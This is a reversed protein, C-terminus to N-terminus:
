SAKKIRAPPAELCSTWGPTAKGTAFMELRPEPSVKEILRRIRTPKEGYKGRPLEMWSRQPSRFARSGRVGLLLLEHNERWYDGDVQGPKTWVFSSKYTFGFCEIAELGERLFSSPVWIHLHSNSAALSEVPLSLIDGTSMTEWPPAVLFCGFKRGTLGELEASADTTASAATKSRRSSVPKARSARGKENNRQRLQTNYQKLDSLRTDPGLEGKKLASKLDPQSFLTMEHLITWSAPLLSINKANSIVPNQSIRMLMQATRQKFPLDSQIMKLFQGHPLAAKARQLTRGTEIISQVSKEWKGKIERAWIPRSKRKRAAM